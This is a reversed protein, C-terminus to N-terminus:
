DEVSDESGRWGFDEPVLGVAPPEWLDGIDMFDEPVMDVQPPEWERFRKKSVSNTEAM